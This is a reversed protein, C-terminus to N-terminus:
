RGVIVVIKVSFLYLWRSTLVVHKLKQIHAITKNVDTSLFYKGIKFIM